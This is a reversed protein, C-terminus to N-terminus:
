DVKVQEYGDPISFSTNLNEDFTINKYQIEINVQDEQQALIFIENPLFMNNQKAHSPYTITLSRNENKQALVEKKLLFNAAEFYYQKETASKAKETLKYM